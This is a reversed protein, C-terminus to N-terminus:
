SDTETEIMEALWNGSRRQGRQQDQQGEEKNRQGHQQALDDKMVPLTDHAKVRELTVGAEAFRAQLQDAGSTLADRVDQYPSFFDVGVAGKEMTIKIDIPGLNEPNISVKAQTVGDKLMSVVTKSIANSWGQEGVTPVVEYRVQTVGANAPQVDVSATRLHASFVGAAVAGPDAGADKATREATVGKAGALVELTTNLTTARVPLKVAAEAPSAQTSRQAVPVVAAPITQQGLVASPKSDSVQVSEAVSEGAATKKPPRVHEESMARASAIEVLVTADSARSPGNKLPVVAPPAQVRVPGPAPVDTMLVSETRIPQAGPIARGPPTVTIEKAPAESSGVGILEATVMEIGVEGPHIVPREVDLSASVPTVEDVGAPDAAETGSRTVAAKTAASHTEVLQKARTDVAHGAVAGLTMASEKLLPTKPATQAKSGKVGAQTAQSLLASFGFSDASGVASNLNAVAKQGGVSKLEL